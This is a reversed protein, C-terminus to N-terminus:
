SPKPPDPEVPLWPREAARKYKGALNQHYEVQRHDIRCALSAYFALEAHEAARAEFAASRRAMWAWLGLVLGALAVFALLRRVNFRPWEM